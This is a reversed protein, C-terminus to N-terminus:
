KLPKVETKYINYHSDMGHRLRRIMTKSIDHKDPYTHQLTKSIVANDNPSGSCYIIQIIYIVM